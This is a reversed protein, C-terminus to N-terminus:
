LLTNLEPQHFYLSIIFVTLPRTQLIKPPNIPLFPVHNKLILNENHVILQLQFEQAKAFWDDSHINAICMEACWLYMEAIKDQSLVTSLIQKPKSM